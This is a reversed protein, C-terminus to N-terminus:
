DKKKKKKVRTAPGLLEKIRLSLSVFNILGLSFSGLGYGRM